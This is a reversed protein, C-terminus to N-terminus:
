TTEPTRAAHPQRARRRRRPRVLPIHWGALRIGPLEKPRHPANKGEPPSKLPERRSRRLSAVLAHVVGGLILAIRLRSHSRSVVTM